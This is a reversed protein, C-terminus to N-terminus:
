PLSSKQSMGTVGERGSRMSRKRRSIMSFRATVVFGSRIRGVSRGMLSSAGMTIGSSAANM